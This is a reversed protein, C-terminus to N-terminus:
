ADVGVRHHEVHAAHGVRPLEEAPARRVAEVVPHEDHSVTNDFHIKWILFLSICYAFNSVNALSQFNM